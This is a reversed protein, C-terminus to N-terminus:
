KQYNKIIKRMDGIMYLSGSILLMDEKNCYRLAKEYAKAYDEIVEVNKNVKMIEESLDKALEARESNPTVAIIKKAKPAIVNIMAEVQKDALIGLILIIDNYKFYYDISEALKRIGDINHAGDIVVLPNDSMIELRGPWKVKNLGNIIDAECLNAGLKNLEEVAHLAVACNLLQHKGLLSLDVKYYKEDTNIEIEQLLNQNHNIVDIFRVSQEKVEILKSNRDECIKKIVKYSEELQPYMVLPIGEKIIGAKEYAIEALTNGLIKMHDYSISTIISLVPIIVNTSDLRGGLGVEVVAYDVKQNYFYLFMACTIIEFETPHEYGLQLVKDVAKSVDTVINSLDEKPINVGNIQIREEFEELFPSTYMGVKYGAAKLIEALMATTSGKGNTGAIHICRLKKHPNGLLELIKETRELGYNSGFKATNHIYKM